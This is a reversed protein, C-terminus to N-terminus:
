YDRFRTKDLNKLFLSFSRLVLVQSYALTLLLSATAFGIERVMLQVPTQATRDGAAWTGPDLSLPLHQATM